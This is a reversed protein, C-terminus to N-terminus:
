NNQFMERYDASEVQVIECHKKEKGEESKDIKARRASQDSESDDDSFLIYLDGRKGTDDLLGYERIVGVYPKKFRKPDVKCCLEKKDFLNIYVSGEEGEGEGQSFPFTRHVLLDYENIRTFECIEDEKQYINFVVNGRHTYGEMKHGANELLVMKGQLPIEISKKVEKGDKFIVYEVRKTAGEYIDSLSAYLDYVIDEPREKLVTKIVKKKEKEKEKKSVFSKGLKAKLSQVNHLLEEINPMGFTRARDLEDDVDIGCESMYEHIRNMDIHPMSGFMNHPMGGDPSFTHISIKIGNGSGMGGLIDGIDVNREFAFGGPMGGGGQFMSNFVDFPNFNPPFGQHGDNYPSDDTSGFMDYTRRKQPDSLTAYAEAISKFRDEAEHNNPNKDPHYKLALKKYSKRIEDESASKEIELIEYYTEKKEKSM